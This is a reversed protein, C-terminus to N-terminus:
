DDLKATGGEYLRSLDLVVRGGHLVRMAELDDTELLSALGELLDRARKEIGELPLPRPRFGCHAVDNRLESLGSWLKAADESRPLRRFWEPVGESQAQSQSERVAAGLAEEVEERFERQVWDGEGRQLITWNVVWERAMLIASAVMGKELAYEILRLQRRLNEADLRDPDPLALKEVEARIGQLIVAFPLAWREVESVAEMLISRLENASRMADRPRALRIAQAFSNLRNALHYIRRPLEEGTREARERWLREHTKSLKQALAAADGRDLFAEAGETWDVLDLLATLDFVPACTRDGQLERAEFAGYVIREVIVQKTRRLYTAVAVAM